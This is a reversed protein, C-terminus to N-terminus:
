GDVREVAWPVARGTGGEQRIGIRGAVDEPLRLLGLDVVPFSAAGTTVLVREVLAEGDGERAERRWYAFLREEGVINAVNLVLAYHAGGAPGTLTVLDHDTDLTCTQSGSDIVSSPM